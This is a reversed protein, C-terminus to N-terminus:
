DVLLQEVYDRVLVPVVGERPPLGETVATTIRAALAQADGTKYLGAPHVLESVGGQDSGIVPVGLALAELVVGPCNEIVVSPFVLVRSQCLRQAVQERPLRGLFHVRVSAPLTLSQEELAVLRSGEGIIDVQLSVDGLLALAELLLAVGKSLELQGVFVVRGSQKTTAATCALIEPAVPNHVVRVPASVFLGAQHHADLIFQTPALVCAPTGFMGRTWVQYPRTVWPRQWVSTRDLWWLGSPVLLQVDHLTHIWRVGSRRVARVAGMGMGRMNHTLILDPTAQAIVRQVVRVSTWPCLDAVHWWLRKWMPQHTDELLHYPLRPRYRVVQAGEQAAARTAKRGTTCVTVVHGQRVLEEVVQQAIAEAGGRAEPAYLNSLLLIRMSANIPLKSDM